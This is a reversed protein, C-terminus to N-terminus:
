EDIVTHAVACRCNVVNEASGGPDGPYMLAEGGVIFPEDMQVTQGDAEAHAERTREDQSAVWEKLIQLGTEKAAANAGYNAAGHTETRAIIHARSKSLGPTVDRIVRAIADTGLGEDFGRQTATIIQNRTTETIETIHRRVAEQKIYAAAFKALTSAFDKTEITVFSAKQSALIRAGFVRIAVKATDTVLREVRKRHEVPKPVKGTKKWAGTLELMAKAIEKRYLPEFRREIAAM